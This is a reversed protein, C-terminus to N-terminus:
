GRYLCSVRQHHYGFNGTTRGNSLFRVYTKCDTTTLRIKTGKELTAPTYAGSSNKIRAPVGVKASLYRTPGTITWYSAGSLKFNGLLEYTRTADWTSLVYVPDFMTVSTKSLSMVCGSTSDVKTPATGDLLYVTTFYDDSASDLSLLVCSKGGSNRYFYAAKFYGRASVSSENGVSDKVFLNTTREAVSKITVTEKKGDGNVDLSYPTNVM